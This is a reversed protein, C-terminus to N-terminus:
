ESAGGSRSSVVADVAAFLDLVHRSNAGLDARGVRSASRVYLWAGHEADNETRVEVEDKFGWLATQAVARLRGASVGSAVVQWRLRDCAARVALLLRDASVAYWRPRLEPFPSDPVTEAVNTTLYRKIREVLGPPDTLPLRNFGIGGIVVLMISSAIIFLSKLIM